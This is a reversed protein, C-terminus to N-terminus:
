RVDWLHAYVWQDGIGVAPIGTVREQVMTPLVRWYLPMWILEDTTLHVLQNLAQMRQDFPITTFYRNVLADTDPNSYRTYNRGAFNHEATRAEISLLSNFGVAGTIVGSQVTFSRFNARYAIDRQRQATVVEPDPTVGLGKWGDLIALQPKVNTDDQTAMIQISLPKGATDQLMGDSGKHYGLDALMRASRAPDYSYRVISQEISRYELDDHHINSDAVESVGYMLEEALHPRDIAFYLAKRFQPNTVIPPDANVFQPNLNLFNNPGTLMKGQPWRDRVQLGQELSIGPGLTFDVTGALLNAVVANEDPIFRVELEDLKPRGLVYGDFATLTARVDPVFEKVQFPGTGVFATTWYPLDVISAKDENYRQELLHAPFPPIFQAQDAQIYPEKWAVKITRDDVEQVSQIFRFYKEAPWPMAGEQNMRATFALDHATFPAGDHWAAGQRIVFTTEMRGDPLLTWLGNELTPLQEALTPVWQGSPDQESLGMATLGGLEQSGEIRGGSGANLAYSMFSPNGRIAAVARKPGSAQPQAQSAPQSGPTSPSQACGAVITAAILGWLGIFRGSRV